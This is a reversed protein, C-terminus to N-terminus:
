DLRTVPFRAGHASIFTLVAGDTSVSYCSWVKAPPWQSCYKDGRVEWRGQSQAGDESYFTDGPAHFIQEVKKTIDAHRYAHDSLAQTIEAGTLLRESAHAATALVFLSSFLIIKYM